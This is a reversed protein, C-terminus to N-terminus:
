LKNRKSKKRSDTRIDPIEKNSEELEETAELIDPETMKMKSIKSFLEDKSIEQIIQSTKKQAYKEIAKLTEEKHQLMPMIIEEVKKYIKEFIEIM